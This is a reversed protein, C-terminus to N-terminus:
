CSFIAVFVDAFYGVLLAACSGSCAYILFLHLLLAARILSDFFMSFPFVIADMRGATIETETMCQRAEGLALHLIPKDHPWLFSYIIPGSVAVDALVGELLAARRGSCGHILFL